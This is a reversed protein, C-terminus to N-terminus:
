QRRSDLYDDRDQEPLDATYTAALDYWTEAAAPGDHKLAALVALFYRMANREILARLGDVYERGGDDTLTYSIGPRNRGTTSLYARTMLRSRLSSRYGYALTLAVGNATNRAQLDLGADTVGLPAQPARMRIELVGGTESITLEHAVNQPEDGGGSRLSLVVQASPDAGTEIRCDRVDPVLAGIRCWTLPDRLRQRVTQWDQDRLVTETGVRYHNQDDSWSLPNGFPTAATAAAPLLMIVCLLATLQGVRFSCTKIM